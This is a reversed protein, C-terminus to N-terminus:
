WTMDRRMETEAVCGTPSAALTFVVLVILRASREMRYRMIRGGSGKESNTDSGIGPLREVSISAEQCVPLLPVGDEHDVLADFLKGSVRALPM